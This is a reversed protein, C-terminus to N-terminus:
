KTTFGWRTVSGSGRESEAQPKGWRGTRDPRCSQQVEESKKKKSINEDRKKRGHTNNWIKSRELVEEEFLRLDDKGHLRHFTLEKARETTKRQLREAKDM